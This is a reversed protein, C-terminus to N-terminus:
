LEISKNYNTVEAIVKNKVRKNLARILDDDSNISSIIKIYFCYLESIEIAINETIEKVMKLCDEDKIYLTNSSVFKYVIYRRVYREFYADLEKEVAEPSLDIFIKAKENEAEKNKIILFKDISPKVLTYIVVLLSILILVTVIIASFNM